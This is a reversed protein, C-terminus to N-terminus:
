CGGHAVLTLVDLVCKHKCRHEACKLVTSSSPVYPKSQSCCDCSRQTSTEMFCCSILQSRCCIEKSQCVGNCRESACLMLELVVLLKNCLTRASDCAINIHCHNIYTRQGWNFLIAEHPFARAFLDQTTKCSAFKIEFRNCFLNVHSFKWKNLM